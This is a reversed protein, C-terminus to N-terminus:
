NNNERHPNSNWFSLLATSNVGSVRM